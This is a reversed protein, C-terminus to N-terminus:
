GSLEGLLHEGIMRENNKETLKPGWRWRLKMKRERYTGTNSRELGEIGGFLFSRTEEVASGDM